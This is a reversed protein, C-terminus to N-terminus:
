IVTIDKSFINELQHKDFKSEYFSIKIKFMGTKIAGDEPLKHVRYAATPSRTKRQMKWILPFIHHYENYRPQTISSYSYKELKVEM